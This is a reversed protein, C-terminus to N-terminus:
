HNVLESDCNELGFTLLKLRVPTEVTPQPCPRTPMPCHPHDYAIAFEQPPQPAQTDRHTNSAAIQLKANAHDTITENSYETTAARTWMYQANNGYYLQFQPFTYARGDQAVRCEILSVTNDQETASAFESYSYTKGDNAKRYEPTGPIQWAPRTEVGRSQAITPRTVPAYLM